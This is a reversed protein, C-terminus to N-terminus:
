RRKIQLSVTTSRTLSGSTGSITLTYTNAKSTASTRVTLLSSSATSAVTVPNPSFSATAGAPLGAVSLSVSGDFGNAPTVTITYQASAGRIVIRKSPSASISFDPLPPSVSVYDPVRKTDTGSQNTVTLAVTYLGPAAYTHSPSKATSGSGDGFDWLWQTPAGLSRDTFTVALPATGSTPTASFDATPPTLVVPLPDFHHWYRATKGNSALVVLGTNSTVNQKTSSANHVAASDADHMVPTGYGSPFSIQGLPSTKEYITGGTTNCSYAPSSPATAFVHLLGQEEDIVVTPRNHCESVKGVTHSEWAGTAASRVLVMILPLAATTQQTKIAAYVRGSGDSKLNIHDDASRLGQLAASSPSWSGAPQGDEHVAFYVADAVQNSWMVGIKNGGFAGVSSIDDVSVTAGAAPLVFPTGWTLDDGVTRSVYIKSDQMWTAWLTGTSDKDIVLTESNYNNITAPFGTDLSYTRTAGDYSFRYLYAPRGAVPLTGDAAYKHSAVYLKTGDWLVDAHTQARRDIAVGTSAWTQTATDLKFIEFDQSVTDWMSAWWYGDNRWLISEARKQGTPTSTGTFAPGEYGIDGVGAPTPGAIFGVVVSALLVSLALWPWRSLRRGATRPHHSPEAGVVRETLVPHSWGRRKSGALSM